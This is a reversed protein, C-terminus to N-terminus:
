NCSATLWGMVRPQVLRLRHIEEDQEAMREEAASLAHELARCESEATAVRSRERKLERRTQYYLERWREQDPRM